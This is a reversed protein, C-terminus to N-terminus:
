YDRTIIKDIIGLQNKAYHNKYYLLNKELELNEPTFEFKKPEHKELEKNFFDQM